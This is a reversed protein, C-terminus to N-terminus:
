CSTGRRYGVAGLLALERRRELVNRLLVTALGVTGLLLGLGGLTQFTSLYTNEVRHFEALREATTTADAGFDALADEIAPRAARCRPPRRRSWCCRYGEQEPFLRVFNAQSMLLEGQFISDRLAAVLRLRIERGGHEIVIEDGLRPAARLDDLERRRHGADAGDPEERHLLLWPNAREAETAALSAQFAFRGEALFRRAAGPHAPEEARVPEPLECRRGAAAPVARHRRRRSRVPEAGRAGRAHEPDHAIPLLTEVILAYGGLGHASGTAALGGRRFADVAILIFTASLRHGGDVARQPRSSVDCQAARSPVGAAMRAGAIAAPPRRFLRVASRAARRAAGFGAGFFAGAPAISDRPRAAGLPSASASSAAIARAALERGGAGSGPAASRRDGSRVDSDRLAVEGALLSRASIRSRAVRLTWWICVPPRSWRRGRGAALSLRLRAADAGDHRRCRGVVHAPRMM